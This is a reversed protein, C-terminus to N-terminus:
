SKFSYKLCYLVFVRYDSWLHVFLAVSCLLGFGRPKHKSKFSFSSVRFRMLSISQTNATMSPLRASPSGSSQSGYGRKKGKFVKPFVTLLCTFEWKVSLSISAPLPPTREDVCHCYARRQCLWSCAAGIKRKHRPTMM